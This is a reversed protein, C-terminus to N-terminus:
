RFNKYSDTYRVKRYTVHFHLTWNQTNVMWEFFIHEKKLWKMHTDVLSGVTHLEKLYKKDEDTPADKNITAIRKILALESVSLHPLGSVNISATHVKTILNARESILESIEKINYNVKGNLHLINDM